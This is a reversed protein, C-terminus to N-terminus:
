LGEMEQKLAPHHTEYPLPCFLCGNLAGKQQKFIAKLIRNARDILEPRQHREGRSVLDFMSRFRRDLDNLEYM